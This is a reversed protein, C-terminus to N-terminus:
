MVNSAGGGGGQASGREKGKREKGAGQGASGRGAGAGAGAWGWGGFLLLAKPARAMCRAAVRAINQAVLPALGAPLDSVVPCSWSRRSDIRGLGGFRTSSSQAQAQKGRTSPPHAEPLESSPSEHLLSCFRGAFKKGGTGPVEVFEPHHSFDLSRCTQSMLRGAMWGDMWGDSPPPPALSRLGTPQLSHQGGWGSCVLPSPCPCPCPFLMLSCRCSGWSRPPQAQQSYYLYQQEASRGPSSPVRPSADPM